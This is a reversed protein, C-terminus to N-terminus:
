ATGSSPDLYNPRVYELEFGARVINRYSSAPKGDVLEGTETVAVNCGAAAAARLRASLLAGQAGRRRHESLTAAIGLWGVGQTVYLAGAAAPVDDEYAVFCDWGDREPLRALWDHMLAPVGYGRIVVEAFTGAERGDVREVRLESEQQPLEGLGRRFKAWAYGPELGRAGLWSVLEAPGAEPAVAACWGIGLTRYFRWIEEVDEETAPRALGLGLARNFLAV